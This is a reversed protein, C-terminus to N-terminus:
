GTGCRGRRRSRPTARGCWRTAQKQQGTRRSGVLMRGPGTPALEIPTTYTSKEAYVAGIPSRDAPSPLDLSHWSVHFDCRVRAPVLTTGSTQNGDLHNSSHTLGQGCLAVYSFDKARGHQNRSQARRRQTDSCPDGVRSRGRRRRRCRTPRRASRARWRASNRESPRWPVPPWTPTVDMETQHKTSPRYERHM